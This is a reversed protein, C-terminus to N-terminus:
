RNTMLGKVARITESSVVFIAQLEEDSTDPADRLKQLIQLTLSIGLEKGTEKGQDFYMVALSEVIMMNDIKRDMQWLEQETYRTLDWAQVADFMEKMNAREEATYVESMVDPKTFFLMWAHKPDGKDFNGLEAWKRLEVITFNLGEMLPADPTNSRLQYHHIWQDNAITLKEDLICLTYVPQIGSFGGGKTPVRSLLRSANWVLRQLLFPTKQIQMEVIFSRGIVDRCRVDVIGLRHEDNEGHLEQPMYEISVIPHPLPLFSNLLHMLANPLNNFIHKFIRDSRPDSSRKM